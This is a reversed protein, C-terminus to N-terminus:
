AARGYQEAIRQFYLNALAWPASDTALQGFRRDM